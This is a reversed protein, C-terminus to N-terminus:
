EASISDTKIIFKVSGNMDDPIGAFSRYENGADKLAKLRDALTELDEEFIETLKEIGEENFKEMGDRLEESGDKLQEVGDALETSGDSLEEAGDVLRSSNEDLESVGAQLESVGNDLTKAGSALTGAGTNLTQAGDSLTKAGSALTKAGGSLDKAGAALAATGEKLTDAGTELDAAGGSLQLIGANLVSMGGLITKTDQTGVTGVGAYLQSVAGSLKAMSGQQQGNEDEGFLTEKLMRISSNLGPNEKTGNQIADLTYLDQYLKQWLAEAQQTNQGSSDAALAKRNEKVEEQVQLAEGTEERGKEQNELIRQYEGIIQEYGAITEEYSAIAADYSAAAQRCTGVATEYESTAGQYSSVADSFSDAASQYGSVIASATSRADGVYGAYKSLGVKNLTSSIDSLVPEYANLANEYTGDAAAKAGGATDRQQLAAAAGAQASTLSDSVNEMGSSAQVAAERASAKATEASAKMQELRDTDADEGEPCYAARDETQESLSEEPHYCAYLQRIDEDITKSVNQISLTGEDESGVAAALQDIAAELAALQGPNKGDGELMTKIQALGGSVQQLANVLEPSSAALTDAGTKLTKAGTQLSAAGSDLSAAGKEVTKAGDFFQEIGAAATDAGKALDGAGDSLSVAGSVLQSSGNKLEGTGERVSSVGDTYEVIGDKLEQVGDTLDPMKDYLEGIGDALDGTGNVLDLAGEKLDSIDDKLDDMKEDDTLGLDDLTNLADNMVLSMSMDMAFNEAEMTVEVYDPIDLSLDLEKNENLKLSEQLGPFALGVVITRNGETIVKGTNVKVNKVCGDGFIMGALVTFPVYIEEEKEGVKAMKKQSNKYEYRIVVKGSKGALEEPTVERGDLTYSIKMEIPAEKETSGQYYIDDGDSNWVIEGNEGAQYTEDGKVNVIDSLITTDKIEDANEPNRLWESVLLKQEEGSADTFIYVTEEKSKTEEAPVEEACAVPGLVLGPVVMVALIKSISEKKLGRM